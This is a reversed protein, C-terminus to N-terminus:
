ALVEKVLHGKVDTLCYNRGAHRCTPKEYDFAILHLLSDVAFGNSAPAALVFILCVASITKM